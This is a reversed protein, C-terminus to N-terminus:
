PKARVPAVAPTWNDGHKKPPRAPVLPAEPVSAAAQPHLDVALTAVAPKGAAYAAQSRYVGVEIRGTRASHNLPLNTIRLYAKEIPLVDFPDPCTMQLAM